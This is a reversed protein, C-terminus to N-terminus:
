MLSHSDDREGLLDRRKALDPCRSASFVRKRCLTKWWQKGGRFQKSCAGAVVRLSGSFPATWPNEYRRFTSGHEISSRFGRNYVVIPVTNIFIDRRSLRKRSRYSHFLDIPAFIHPSDLILGAAGVVLDWM